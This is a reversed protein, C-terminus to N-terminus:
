SGEARAFKTALTIRADLCFRTPAGGRHEINGDLVVMRGPRPPIALAISGPGDEYLLLEGGWDLGWTSNVFLLTTWCHGDTHSFQQDGYLNFNAYVRELEDCALGLSSMVSRAAAVILAVPTGGECDETQFYHVLHRAFRTDARDADGFHYGLELFSEHLSKLAGAEIVNDIVWAKRSGDGITLPRVVPDADEAPPGPPFFLAEFDV